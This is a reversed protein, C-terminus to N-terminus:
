AVQPNVTLKQIKEETVIEAIGFEKRKLQKEGLIKEIKLSTWRNVDNPNVKQPTPLAEATKYKDLGLAFDKILFQDSKVNPELGVNLQPIKEIKQLLFYPVGEKTKPLKPDAPVGGTASLISNKQGLDSVTNNVFGKYGEIEKSQYDPLAQKLETLKEKEKKQRELEAQVRKEKAIEKESKPKISKWWSSVQSKMERWKSAAKDTLSKEVVETQSQPQSKTTLGELERAELSVSFSLFFILTLIMRLNFM